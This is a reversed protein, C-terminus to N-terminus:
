WKKNVQREPMECRRHDNVNKKFNMRREQEYWYNVKEWQYKDWFAKIEGKYKFPLEVSYSPGCNTSNGGQM